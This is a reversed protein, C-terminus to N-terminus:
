EAQSKGGHTRLVSSVTTTTPAHAQDAPLVEVSYLLNTTHRGRNGPIEESGDFRAEGQPHLGHHMAEELIALRNANHMSDHAPDEWDDSAASVTFFRHYRGDAPVNEPQRAQTEQATELETVRPTKPAREADTTKKRPM